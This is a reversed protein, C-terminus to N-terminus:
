KRVQSQLWETAGPSAEWLNLLLEACVVAEEQSGPSYSPPLLPPFEKRGLLYAPVYRNVDLAKQLHKRPTATDGKQRFTLLARGYAWIALAYDDKYQKMLEKAQDDLDLELLLPLLLHRVGQNDNPNLRLLERYHTLAEDRDGIEQLCQALGFLARMYPRTQMIDWFDGANEQFFPEGL